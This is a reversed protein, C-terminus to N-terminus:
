HSWRRVCATQQDDLACATRVDLAHADAFDAFNATETESSLFSRGSVQHRICFRDGLLV